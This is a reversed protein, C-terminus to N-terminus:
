ARSMQQHAIKATDLLQALPHAGNLVYRKSATNWHVMKLGRASDSGFDTQILSTSGVLRPTICLAIPKGTKPLYVLQILTQQNVELEQGRM